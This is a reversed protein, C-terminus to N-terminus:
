SGLNLVMAREELYATPNKRKGAQSVGCGAHGKSSSVESILLDITPLSDASKALCAQGGIPSATAMTFGISEIIFALSIIEEEGLRGWIGWNFSMGVPGHGFSAFIYFTQLVVFILM